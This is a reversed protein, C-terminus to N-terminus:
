LVQIAKTAQPAPGWIPQNCRHPVFAKQRALPPPVQSHLSSFGADDRHCWTCNANSLGSWGTGGIDYFDRDELRGWRGRGVQVRVIVLEDKRSQNILTLQGRFLLFRMGRGDEGTGWGSGSREVFVPKRQWRRYANIAPAILKLGLFAFQEWAM